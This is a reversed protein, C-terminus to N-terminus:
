EIKIIEDELIPMDNKYVMLGFEQDVVYKYIGNTFTFFFLGMAGQSELVGNNLIIDPKEVLDRGRKWCAYRYVDNDNKGEAIKDIMITYKNTYIIYMPLIFTRVSPHLKLKRKEIAERWLLREKASEYNISYLELNGDWFNVWMLGDCINFGRWGISWIKNKKQAIQAKFDDTFIVDYYKLMEVENNISPLPYRRVLPYSIHKVVKERKNNLIDSLLTSISQAKSATLDYDDNQAFTSINGALLMMVVLKVIKGM